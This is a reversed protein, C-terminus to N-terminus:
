RDCRMVACVHLVRRVSPCVPRHALKTVSWASAGGSPDTSTFVHGNQDVAVCVATTCSLSLFGTNVMPGPAFSWAATGGTPDSSTVIDANGDLAVCANVSPCSVTQLGGTLGTM